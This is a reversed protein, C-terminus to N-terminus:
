SAYSTTNRILDANRPRSLPRATMDVPSASAININVNNDVSRYDHIENMSHQDSGLPKGVLSALRLHLDPPFLGSHHFPVSSPDFGPKHPDGQGHIVDPGSHTESPAGGKLFLLARARHAGMM